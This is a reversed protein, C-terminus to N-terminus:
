RLGWPDRVPLAWELIQAADRARGRRRVRRQLGM